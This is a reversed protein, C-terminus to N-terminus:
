SRDGVRLRARVKDGQASSNELTADLGGAALGARITEVAEFDNAVINLRMEAAKENYNISVLSSGPSDGVVAGVRTLLSVFGSGSGSGAVSDLQRRLQKEPDVVAGRPFARRYSQERAERLALNQAELRHYDAWGALLHAAVAVGFLAAAARWARWWRGLPLRVAYEGQRLNLAPQPHEALLMATPFDGRRWQVQPALASPLLALDAEQESGYVVVTAPQPASELLAALMVPLLEREVSFGECRGHRVIADGAELLVCWEGPQWPLLLPEPLWLNALAVPELIEQYRRMRAHSCVAVAYEGAELAVRAFHLGSVDEALDEELMFPLSKDLHRREEAAVELRLLRLDQGPVAFVPTAGRRALLARLADREAKVDLSRPGDSAGPPYWALREGLLRIIAVDRV